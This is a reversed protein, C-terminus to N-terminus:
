RVSAYPMAGISPMLAVGPSLSLRLAPIPVLIPVVNLAVDPARMAGGSATQRAPHRASGPRDM